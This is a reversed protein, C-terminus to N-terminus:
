HIHQQPLATSHPHPPTNHQPAYTSSIAPAPQLPLPPAHALAPPREATPALRPAPAAAPANRM